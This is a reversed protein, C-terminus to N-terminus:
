IKSCSQFSGEMKEQGCPSVPTSSSYGLLWRPLFKWFYPMPSQYPFLGLDLIQLSEFRPAFSFPGPSSGDVFTKMKKQFIGKDSVAIRSDKMIFWVPLSSHLQSQALRGQLGWWKIRVVVSTCLHSDGCPTSNVYPGLAFLMECM